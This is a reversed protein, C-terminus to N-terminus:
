RLDADLSNRVMTTKGAGNPGLLALISGEDASLSVNDLVLHSGFSKCVGRAVIGPASVRGTM